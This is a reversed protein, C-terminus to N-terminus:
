KGERFGECWAQSSIDTSFRQYGPGYPRRQIAKGETKAGCKPETDGGMPIKNGKRLVSAGVSQDEKKVKMHDTFQIKPIRLESSIGV